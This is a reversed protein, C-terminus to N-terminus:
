EGAPDSTHAVPTVRALQDNVATLLMQGSMFRSPVFGTGFERLDRQYNAFHSDFVVFAARTQELFVRYRKIEEDRKARTLTELAREIRENERQRAELDERERREALRLEVKAQEAKEQAKALDRQARTIDAQTAEGLAVAERGQAVWATAAGVAAEAGALRLKAETSSIM